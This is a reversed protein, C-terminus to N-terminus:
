SHSTALRGLIEAFASPDRAIILTTQNWYGYLLISRNMADRYIRVDHNNVVEDRFGGKQIVTITTTTTAISKKTTAAATRSTTTTSLIPAAPIPEPYLLFLAGLANQMVPEWSLMGSFTAGYSGVSLIFFPSKINNVNVVGAMSRGADINRLLIGPASTNLASFVSTSSTAESFSLLRVTNLALPKAVSQNIAQILASGTGSVQERSDVFIPTSAVVAGIVPALATLYRAYTIYVGVGSAILLLVGALVYWRTSHDQGSKEPIAQNLRPASDQEAALITATSAHTEKVQKRFDESYTELPTSKFTDIPPLPAPIQPTQAAIKIPASPLSELPSAAVLREAPTPMSPRLPALGPTGGKQFIDMDSAFTRIYREPSEESSHTPLPIVKTDM